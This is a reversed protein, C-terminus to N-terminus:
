TTDAKKDLLFAIFLGYILGILLAPIFGLYYFLGYMESTYGPNRIDWFWFMLFLNGIMLLTSLLTIFFKSKLNLRHILSILLILTIPTSLAFGVWFGLFTKPYGDAISIFDAIGGIIVSSIIITKTTRKTLKNFM